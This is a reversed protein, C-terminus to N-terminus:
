SMWNEDSLGFRLPCHSDTGALQEAQHTHDNPMLPESKKLSM